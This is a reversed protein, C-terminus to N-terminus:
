DFEKIGLFMKNLNIIEKFLEIFVEKVIIFM